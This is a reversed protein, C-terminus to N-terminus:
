VSGTAIPVRGTVVLISETAVPFREETILTSGAEDKVQSMPLVCQPDRQCLLSVHPCAGLDNPTLFHHLIRATTLSGNFYSVIRFLLVDIRNRADQKRSGM